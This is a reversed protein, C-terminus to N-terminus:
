RDPALPTQDAFRRGRVPSWFGVPRLGPCHQQLDAVVPDRQGVVPFASGDGDLADRRSVAHVGDRLPRVVRCAFAVGAAPYGRRAM